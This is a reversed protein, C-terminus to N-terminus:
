RDTPEPNDGVWEDAPRLDTTYDFLSAPAEVRDLADSRTILQRFPRAISGTPLALELRAAAETLPDRQAASAVIRAVHTSEQLAVTVRDSLSGSLRELAAAGVEPSPLHFSLRYGEVLRVQVDISERELPNSAYEACHSVVVSAGREFAEELAESPAAAWASVVPRREEVLSRGSQRYVCGSQILEELRGLVDEGRVVAIKSAARDGAALLAPAFHSAAEDPSLEGSAILLKLGAQLHLRPAFVAAVTALKSRAVDPRDDRLDLYAREVSDDTPELVGGPPAQAALRAADEIQPAQSM